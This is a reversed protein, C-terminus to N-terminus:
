PRNTPTPTRPTPSIPRNILPEKSQSRPNPAPRASPGMSSSQNELHSALDDIIAAVSGALADIRNRFFAVVATVPIAVVLGLITTVLALSIDGALQDPRAFGETQSITSFAGTLDLVTGLLGLMPAIGAIVALADTSRYLRAVQENGAEELAGKLELAGFPSRRYRSLGAAMVHSLFCSNERAKCAEIAQDVQGKSLLRELEDVVVQPALAQERIRVIHVVILAVAAFSLAIIVFGIVGGSQIQDFVSVARVEDGQAQTQALLNMSVAIDTLANM